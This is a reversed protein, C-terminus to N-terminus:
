SGSCKESKRQYSERKIKPWIINLGWWTLSEQAGRTKEKHLDSKKKWNKTKQKKLAVDTAYPPEWALPQIPATAALRCWLWLWLWAPDWGCRYGVGCNVAVSSGKVWKALGPISGTDEHISTLNMEM